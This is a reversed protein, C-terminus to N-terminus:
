KTLIQLKEKLIQFTCTDQRKITKSKATDSVNGIEKVIGTRSGTEIVIGTRSGTEIVIGTRSNTM